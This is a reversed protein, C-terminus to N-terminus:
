ILQETIISISRKEGECLMLKTSVNIGYFSDGASLMVIYIVHFHTHVVKSISQMMKSLRIIRYSKQLCDSFVENM